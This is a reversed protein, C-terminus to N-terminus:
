VFLFSFPNHLESRQHAVLRPTRRHLYQGALLPSLRGAGRRGPRRRVRGRRRRRCERLTERAPASAHRPVARRVEAGLGDGRVAVTERFRREKELELLVQPNGGCHGLGAWMIVGCVGGRHEGRRAREGQERQEQGRSQVRRRYKEV